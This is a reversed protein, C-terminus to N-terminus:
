ATFHPPHLHPQMVGHTRLGLRVGCGESQNGTRASPLNVMTILFCLLFVCGLSLPPRHSLPSSTQSFM